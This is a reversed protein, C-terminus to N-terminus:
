RGNKKWCFAFTSMRFHPKQMHGLVGIAQLMLIADEWRMPVLYLSSKEIQFAWVDLYKEFILLILKPVDKTPPLYDVMQFLPLNLLIQEELDGDFVQVVWVRSQLLELWLGFM